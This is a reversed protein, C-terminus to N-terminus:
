EITDGEKIYPENLKDKYKEYYIPWQSHMPFPLNELKYWAIEDAKHPEGNQVQAPDILVKYDFALWHSKVGDQERRVERFGMLEFDLVEACYEEMIEKRLTEEILDGYELSGGGQDWTGQEDRAQNSRKAMLFNGAGDHCAFVVTIGTFDIVKKM